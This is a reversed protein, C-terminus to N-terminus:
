GAAAMVLLPLEGAVAAAVGVALVGMVLAALALLWYVLRGGSEDVPYVVAVDMPGLKRLVPSQVSARRKGRKRSMVENDAGGCWEGSRAHAEEINLDGEAGAAAAPLM